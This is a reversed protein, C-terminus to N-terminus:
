KLINILWPVLLHFHFCHDSKVAHSPQCNTEGSALICMDHKAVAKHKNAQVAQSLVCSQVMHLCVWTIFAMQSCHSVLCWVITTINGHNLLLTIKNTCLNEKINYCSCFLAFVRKKQQQVNQQLAKGVGVTPIVPTSVFLLKTPHCFICLVVYNHIDLSKSFAEAIELM